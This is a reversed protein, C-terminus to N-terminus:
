PYLWRWLARVRRVLAGSSLLTVWLVALASLALLDALLLAFFALKLAEM